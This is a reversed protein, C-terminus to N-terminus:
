RRSVAAICQCLERGGTTQGYSHVFRALCSIGVAIGRCSGLISLCCGNGSPARWLRVLPSSVLPPDSQRISRPPLVQPMLLLIETM